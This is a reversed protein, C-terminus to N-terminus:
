VEEEAYNDSAHVMQPKQELEDEEEFGAGTLKALIVQMEDDTPPRGKQQEFATAIQTQLAEMVAEAHEPDEDAEAQENMVSILHDLEEDTPDRENQERFGEIVKAMLLAQLPNLGEVGEEDSEESEEESSTEEEEYVYSTRWEEFDGVTFAEPEIGGLLKIVLIDGRVATEDHPAPLEHLSESLSEDQDRLINFILDSQTYHLFDPTGGVVGHVGGSAVSLDVEIDQVEGSARLVVCPIM